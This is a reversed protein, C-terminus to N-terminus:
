GFCKYEDSCAQIVWINLQEKFVMSESVFNIMLM